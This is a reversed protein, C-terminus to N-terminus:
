RDAEQHIFSVDLLLHIFLKGEFNEEPTVSMHRMGLREKLNDFFKKILDKSRYIQIAAVSDKSRNSSHPLSVILQVIRSIFDPLALYKPFYKDM